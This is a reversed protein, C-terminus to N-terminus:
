SQPGSHLDTIAAVKESSPSDPDFQYALWERAMRLAVEIGIVREGMCLVHADNSLVSREVSYSDHATVARVGPIKNAAIAMGLGTGCILIARDVRGDAVLQAAAQAVQPYITQGDDDVGVDVIELVRPDSALDAKIAEKYRFGADDGGVAVRWKVMTVEDGLRETAM